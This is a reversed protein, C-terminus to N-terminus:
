KLEFEYGVSITTVHGMWWDPTAKWENYLTNGNIDTYYVAASASPHACYHKGRVFFGNYTFKQEITYINEFPQMQLPSQADKFYSWTRIGASSESKINFFSFRYGANLDTFYMGGEISPGIEISCFPGAYSVSFCFVFVFVFVFFIVITNKM